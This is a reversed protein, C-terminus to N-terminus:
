CGAPSGPVLTKAVDGDLVATLEVTAIAATARDTGVLNNIGEIPM